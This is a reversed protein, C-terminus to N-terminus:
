TSLLHPGAGSAQRAKTQTACPAAWGHTHSPTCAVLPATCERIGGERAAELAGRSLQQGRQGNVHDTCQMHSTRKGGRGWARGGAAEPVKIRQELRLLVGRTIRM